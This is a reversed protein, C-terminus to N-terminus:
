VDGWNAGQKGKGTLTVRWGKPRVTMCETMAAVAEDAHEEPVACYLADHVQSWLGLGTGPQPKFFHGFENVARFASERMALAGDTQIPFNALDSPGSKKPFWRKLGSLPATICGTRDFEDQLQDWYKPLNPVVRLFKKQLGATMQLTLGLNTLEGHKDVDQLLVTYAAKPSGAYLSLYTIGKIRGRRNAFQTGDKGKKLRSDPAGESNWYVDEGYVHGATWNHLDSEGGEMVEIYETLGAYECIVKLELSDSDAAVMVCGEPPLFLHKVNYPTQMVNPASGSWRLSVTGAANFSPYVLGDARILKGGPRLPVLFGAVTKEIKSLKRIGMILKLAEPAMADKQTSLLQVLGDKGVSPAGADTYVVPSLDYDGFLLGCVQKSSGPNFKPNGTLKVLDARISRAQETLDLEMKARAVQDIRVGVKHMEAALTQTEQYFDVLHDQGRRKAIATLIPDVRRTAQVDLSNYMLRGADNEIGLKSEMRHVAKWAPWNEPLNAVQFNLGKPYDPRALRAVMMTDRINVCKSFGHQELCPMDYSIWNHGRITLAPYAFAEDVAQLIQALEHLDPYFESTGTALFVKGNVLNRIDGKTLGDLPINLSWNPVGIGIENLHDFLTDYVPKGEANWQTPKTEIDADLTGDERALALAEIVEPLSAPGSIRPYKFEEEHETLRRIRKIGGAVLPRFFDKMTKLNLLSQTVVMPPLGKPVMDKDTILFGMIDDFKGKIGLAVKALSGMVLVAGAAEVAPRWRAECAKLPNVDGKRKRLGMYRKLDNDAPGKPVMSAFTVPFPSTTLSDRIFSSWIESFVVGREGDKVTPFGALVLIAGPVVPIPKFQCSLHRMPCKTCDHETM